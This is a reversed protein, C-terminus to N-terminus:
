LGKHVVPLVESAFLELSAQAEALPMGGYSAHLVLYETGLAEKYAGIVDLIEQPSGFLVAGPAHDTQPAGQKSELRKQMQAYAEYGKVGDFGSTKWKFYHNSSAQGQLRHHHRAKDIRARSKACHMWLLVIPRDPPMGHEARIGNYMEVRQKMVDLPEGAVFLQGLGKEAAQTASGHTTFACRADDLLAGRHRAQPRTSTPPVKFHEGDYSFEERTDALRLIDVVEHFIERSKDRPVGLSGYEHESIGRGLGILLRRGQLLNDLMSLEAALRVPNWWPAVVVASGLDVRQTRGAWYALWQLPNPQMSYPSGYHETTWLSDYGLPEVLAGLALADEVMRCDPTAPPRSYDNALVRDWDDQNYSAILAGIKM